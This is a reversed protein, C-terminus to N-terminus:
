NQVTKIEINTLESEMHIKLSLIDCKVGVKVM